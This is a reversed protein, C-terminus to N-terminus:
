RRVAAFLARIEEDVEAPDSVTHAIEERLLEGFRRRLRLVAMKVAGESLNLTAALEVYPAAPRDGSLSGNLAAYLTNKGEAVYEQRLQELVAGLLTLAWSREFAKDPSDDHAPELHFRGESLEADLSVLTIKGGRKLAQVKDRENTLFHKLSALLFSRFRGKHPSTTRLREKDLLHVFFAQALDQADHMPYGQQRIWAYLPYLYTACLRNLAEQADPTEAAAAVLVVSWHTTHFRGSASVAM